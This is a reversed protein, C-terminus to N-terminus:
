LNYKITLYDYITNLDDGTQIASYLIIEAIDGWLFKGANGYVEHGGITHISDGADYDAAQVGKSTQDLLFNYGSASSRLEFIHTGTFPMAAPYEEIRANRFAGLYGCSGPKYGWWSDVSASHNYLNYYEDESEGSGITAVIFLHAASPVLAGVGAIQMEDDNNFRIVPLSNLINVKYVPRLSPTATCSLSNPGVDAWIAVAEGDSLGTIQDAALLFVLDYEPIVPIEPPTFSITNKWYVLTLTDGVQPTFSTLIKTKTGNLIAETLSVALGNWFCVFMYAVDDILFTTAEGDIQETLDIYALHNGYVDYEDSGLHYYESIGGNLFVGGQLGSLDNHNTIGPPTELSPETSGGVVTAATEIYEAEESVAPTSTYAIPVGSQYSIYVTDGIIPQNGIYKIGHLKPGNTGFQVTINKGISDLVTAPIVKQKTTNTIVSLLKSKPM